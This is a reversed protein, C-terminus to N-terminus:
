ASPRELAFPALTRLMPDDTVRPSPAPPFGSTPRIAASSDRVSIAAMTAPVSRQKTVEPIPPPVPEPAAGTTASTAISEPARVIPMTVLGKLNSPFRRILCATSAIVLSFSCTSVTMTTEFSRRSSIMGSSVGMFLANATASSIRRWPTTPMDSIMMLGPIMLTSKASTRDTMDSAPVARMPMPIPLPLVPASSAAAAAIDLGKSSEVISLALPTTKLMDPPSPRLRVSTLRAARRIYSLTSCSAFTIKPARISSDKPSEM